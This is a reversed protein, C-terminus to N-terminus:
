EVKVKNGTEDEMFCDTDLRNGIHMVKYKGPNFKLKWKNTWKQLSYLDGQLIASDEASLETSAM